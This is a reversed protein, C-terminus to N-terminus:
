HIFKSSVLFTFMQFHRGQKILHFLYQLYNLKGYIASPWHLSNIYKSFLNTITSLPIIRRAPDLDM